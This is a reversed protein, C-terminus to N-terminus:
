VLNLQEIVHQLNHVLHHNTSGHSVGEQVSSALVSTLEFQGCKRKHEIDTGVGGPAIWEAEARHPSRQCTVLTSMRLCHNICTHLQAFVLWLAGSRSTPSSTFVRAILAVPTPCPAPSKGGAVGGCSAQNPYRMGLGCSVPGTVSGHGAKHVRSPCKTSSGGWTLFFILWLSHLPSHHHCGMFNSYLNPYPLFNMINIAHYTDFSTLM